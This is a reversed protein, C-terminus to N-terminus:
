YVIFCSLIDTTYYLLAESSLALVRISHVATLRDQVRVVLANRSLEKGFNGLNKINVM